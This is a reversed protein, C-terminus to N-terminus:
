KLEGSTKPKSFIPEFLEDTTKWKGFDSVPASRSPPLANKEKGSIEKISDASSNETKASREFVVACFIRAAGALFLTILVANGLLDFWSSSPSSEILVDNPVFFGGLIQFAPILILALLLLKIGFRIGKQFQSLESSDENEGNNEVAKRVSKLAFGCKSCFGTEDSVIESACKPCFM